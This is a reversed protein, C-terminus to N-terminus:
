SRSCRILNAFGSQAGADPYPSVLRFYTLRYDTRPCRWYLLRGPSRIATTWTSSWRDPRTSRGTRHMTAPRSRRAPVPRPEHTVSRRWSRSRTALSATSRARCRRTRPWWGSCVRSEARLVAIDVPCDGGVALGLALDLLIKAPDHVAWRPRWLALATSLARDLGVRNITETLLVSGAHSVVQTAATDVNPSPYSGIANKM